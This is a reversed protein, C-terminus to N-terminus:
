FGEGSEPERLASIAKWLPTLRVYAAYYVIGVLTPALVPWIPSAMGIWRRTLATVGFLGVCGMSIWGLRSVTERGLRQKWLLIMGLM